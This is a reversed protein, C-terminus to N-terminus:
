QGSGFALKGTTQAVAQGFIPFQNSGIRSRQVNGIGFGHMVHDFVELWIGDNIGCSVSGDIFCFFVSFSSKGDVCGSNVVQGCGGAGCVRAKNM